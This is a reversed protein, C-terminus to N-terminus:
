QLTLFMWAFDYGSLSYGSLSNQTTFKQVNSLNLSGEFLLLNEGSRKIRQPFQSSVELTSDEFKDKWAKIHFFSIFFNRQKLSIQLSTHCDISLTCLSFNFPIRQLYFSLITMFLAEVFFRILTTIVTKDGKCVQGNGSPCLHDKVHPFHVISVNHLQQWKELSPVNLIIKILKVSRNKWGWLIRKFINM